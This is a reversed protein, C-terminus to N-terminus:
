YRGDATEVEHDIREGQRSSTRDNMRWKRVEWRRRSVSRISHSSFTLCTLLIFSGLRTLSRGRTDWQREKGKWGAWGETVDRREHRWESRVDRAGWESREYRPTFTSLVSHSFSHFSRPTLPHCSGAHLTIHAPEKEWGSMAGEKEWGMGRTVSRRREERSHFSM